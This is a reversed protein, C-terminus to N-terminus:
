STVAEVRLRARVWKLVGEYREEPTGLFWHDNNFALEWALSFAMKLNHEGFQATDTVSACDGGEIDYQDSEDLAALAQEWTSGAQVKRYGALAGVTCFSKGDCLVGDILRKEPLALLAAEIERLVKQGRQSYTARNVANDWLARRSEDLDDNEYYTRAM